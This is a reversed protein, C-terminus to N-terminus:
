SAIELSQIMAKLKKYQPTEVYARAEAMSSFTPEAADQVARDAFSLTGTPTGTVLTYLLCSDSVSGSDKDVLGLQYSFGKGLSTRDMVRYSFRVGRELAWRGRISSEGSDLETVKYTGATCAGGLGGAATHQFTAVPNGSEDSVTIGSGPYDPTGAPADKATWGEPLVFTAKGDGSTFRKAPAAAPKVPQLALSILMRKVDRYEQTGMYAKAEDISAFTLPAGKGDATLWSTDGFQAFPVNDPGLIGNYLGCTTPPAALDGDALAMSGYVQDGQIIRFVFASPGQPHERLKAAKQPIDVAVSDLTQYPKPVPCVPGGAADYLLRLTSMTRGAPNRVEVINYEGGDITQPEQSVTWGLPHEFTAQGTADTFTTWTVAAATPTPTPRLSAAPTATATRSATPTATPPLTSEAPAPVVTGAPQPAAMLSGLNAAVLVGATVAAAALTLVGAVRARHRKRDEFRFVNAPLSDTFMPAGRTVRRLAEDTDPMAAPDDRLPDSGSILNKIPDM